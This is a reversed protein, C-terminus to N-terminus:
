KASKNKRIWKLDEAALSMVKSRSCLSVELPSMKNAYILYTSNVQYTDLLCDEGFAEKTTVSKASSGKFTELIELKAIVGQNQNLINESNVKRKSLSKVKALAVFKASKFEKDVAEHPICDCGFSEFGLFSM